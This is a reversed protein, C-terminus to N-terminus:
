MQHYFEIKNMLTYLIILTINTFPDLVHVVLHNLLFCGQSLLMCTGEMIKEKFDLVYSMYM